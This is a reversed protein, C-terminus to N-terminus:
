LTLYVAEWRGLDSSWYAGELRYISELRALTERYIKDTTWPHLELYMFKIRRLADLPTNLLINFEEGEVDMKVCDFIADGIADEFAVCQAGCDGDKNIGGNYWICMPDPNVHAAFTASGNFDSIAVNVAKIPLGTNKIMAMLQAFAQPHPEFATVDAGNAACFASYIGVNAGIDMVKAGRFPKFRENAGAWPIAGGLVIERVTHYNESIDMARTFEPHEKAIREWVSDRDAIQEPTL